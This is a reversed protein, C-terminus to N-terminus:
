QGAKSEVIKKNREAIEAEDLELRKRMKDKAKNAASEFIRRADDDDPLAMWSLEYLTGIAAGQRALMKCIRDVGSSIAKLLQNTAYKIAEAIEHDRSQNKINEYNNLYFRIAERAIETKTRSQLGALEALKLRDKENLGVSIDQYQNKRPM